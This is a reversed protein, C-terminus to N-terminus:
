AEAADPGPRDPAPPAAAFVSGALRASVLDTLLVSIVVATFVIRGIPLESLQLYNLGIILAFGGQGLLGRGWNGGLVPLVGNARAALRAGGVKGLARAALFALTVLVWDRAAPNWSAGALVLVAFYLPREIRALSARIEGRRLSTNALIAGFVAASLMASLRLYAAAGSVLIVAGILAIVLRDPKREEGVFLHFLIGGVAGIAVNIVVWETATPARPLVAPQRHFYATLIGFVVVAITAGMGASVTLQRSLPDGPRRGATAVGIGAASTVSAMAGLAVAPIVAEEPSLGLTAVLLWWQTGAVLALTIVVEVFAVRYVVGPIRLLRPLMFQAGLLAGTWGLGLTILPSLRDLLEVSLLGSVQPGLLIGLLLYEAGSVIRFRRALWDFVVHAALYSAAVIPILILSDTM